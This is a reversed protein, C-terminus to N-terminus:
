QSATPIIVNERKGDQVVGQAGTVLDLVRSGIAFTLSLNKIGGAVPGAATQLQNDRHVTLLKLERIQDDLVSM